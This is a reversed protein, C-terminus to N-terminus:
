DNLSVEEQKEQEGRTFIGVLYEIKFGWFLTFLFTFTHFTM